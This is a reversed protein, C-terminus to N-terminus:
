LKPLEISIGLGGLDSRFLSIEGSLKTVAKSMINFGLGSGGKTLSRASNFRTLYDDINLSQSEPIPGSDEFIIRILSSDSSLSVRVISDVKSHRRTNSLINRIVKLLLEESGRIWIQDDTTVEVKRQPEIAQFSTMEENLLDTLNVSTLSEDELAELEFITLLNSINQDLRDSEKALKDLTANDITEDGRRKTLELYGKIVTLPTRLEHSTDSTFELLMKRRSEEFKLKEKLVIQESERKLDQSIVRRLIVTALASALSLYLLFRLLGSFRSDSLSRTSASVILSLGGEIPVKRFLIYESPKGNGTVYNKIAADMTEEESNSALEYFENNEDSLYLSVSFPSAEALALALTAKDVDSDSVSEVIVDLDSEVLKVQNRYGIEIFAFGVAGSTV